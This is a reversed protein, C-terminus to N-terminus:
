VVHRFARKRPVHNRLTLPGIKGPTFLISEKEM